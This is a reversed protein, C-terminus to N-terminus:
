DNNGSSSSSCGLSSIVPLGSLSGNSCSASGNGNSACVKDASSLLQDNDPSSLHCSTTSGHGSFSLHDGGSSTLGHQALLPDYHQSSSCSPAPCNNCSVFTDSSVFPGDPQSFLALSAQDNNAASSYGMLLLNLLLPQDFLPLCGVASHDQDPLFSHLLPLACDNNGSPYPHLFNSDCSANGDSLSLFFSLSESSCSLSLNLELLLKCRLLFLLMLDSLLDGFCDDLGLASFLLFSFSTLSATAAADAVAFLSLTLLLSLNAGRWDGGLLQCLGAEIVISEVSSPSHHRKINCM